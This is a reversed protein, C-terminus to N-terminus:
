TNRKTVKIYLGFPDVSIIEDIASNIADGMEKDTMTPDTRAIRALYQNTNYGAQEDYALWADYQTYPDFPNDVTTLMAM